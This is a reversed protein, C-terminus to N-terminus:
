VAPGEKVPAGTGGMGGDTETPASCAVLGLLCLTLIVKRIM